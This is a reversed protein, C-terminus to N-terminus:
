KYERQGILSANLRGNSAHPPVPCLHRRQPPPMSCLLTRVEQVEALQAGDMTASNLSEYAEQAPARQRSGNRVANAGTRATALLTGAVLGM